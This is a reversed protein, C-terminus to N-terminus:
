TAEGMEQVLNELGEMRLHVEILERSVEVRSVLLQIIRAQERPFLEKWVPDINRLAKTIDREKVGESNKWTGMVMEPTRLVQQVRDFVVAEVEGASIMRIPCHDYRNKSANMCLYYRYQKGGKKRTHSTTMARDCHRCRIIGKLLAPTEAKTANARQRPNRALIAHVKGWLSQDIIADHEGPHAVGKHVAQGLYVRNSLLRYLVGKDFKRGDHLTGTSSSTWTKTRHGDRNLEEVLTTGSGLETFRQFIHRILDAEEPNVLLRRDEIDYGLPPFGGMWLGRKRSAAVKDRIREASLEREFQAFSLLINLTLRGMSTTTNFSQTVSVFTVDHRDFTEVLKSFDMLSRSLRDIKYVVVVNVQGSEIERLLRKLAPRDLTGGSFGGDDFRDQHAMWGESRQSAIFSECSERQAHLSNFEQDLGEDSSTRTYIACHTKKVPNKQSM